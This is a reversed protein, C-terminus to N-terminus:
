YLKYLRYLELDLICLIYIYIYQRYSICIVNVFYVYLYNKGYQIVCSVVYIYM